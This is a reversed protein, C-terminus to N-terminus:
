QLKANECEKQWDVNVMARLPRGSKDHSTVFLKKEEGILAVVTVDNVPTYQETLAAANVSFTDGNFGIGHGGHIHGFVHINPKIMQVVKALEECGLHQKAGPYVTDLIGYPPGHTILVDVDTPIRDWHQRIADGRPVNFAWNCFEPQYPSGWFKIGYVECGSEELYFDIDSLAAKAFDRTDSSEFLRDHNGAIAIAIPAKGTNKKINAKQAKVWLNFGIIEAWSRGTNCFDGAHVIIECDPLTFKDHLGHTDSICCIRIISM